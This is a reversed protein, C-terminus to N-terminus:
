TMQLTMKVQTSNVTLREDDSAQSYFFRINSIRFALRECSILVLFIFFPANIMAICCGSNWSSSACGYCAKESVITIGLVRYLFEPCCPERVTFNPNRRRVLLAFYAFKPVLQGTPKLLVLVLSTFQTISFSSRFVANNSLLFRAISRSTFAAYPGPVGPAAKARM